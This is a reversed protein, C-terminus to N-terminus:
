YRRPELFRVIPDIHWNKHLGPAHGCDPITLVEMYPKASQMKKVIEKTLVDSQGGHLLLIPCSLNRFNEWLNFGPVTEQPAQVIDPDFHVTFKGNSNRRMSSDAFDFWEQESRKGMMIYLEKMYAEFEPYSDFEPQEGSTYSIIRQIADEPIEPGIDNMVLHNIRNKLSTSALIMGLIGGMSTGVWDLHDLNFHDCIGMAIRVYNFYNYEEAPNDAWQSLGRGITDPCLVRFSGSLTDALKLFDSGSRALGHWCVVTRKEEPNYVKVHISRNNIGLFRSIASMAVEKKMM